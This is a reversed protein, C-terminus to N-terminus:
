AFSTVGIRRMQRYRGTSYGAVVSGNTTAESGPDATSLPLPVTGRHYTPAPASAVTPNNSGYGNRAFPVVSTLTHGTPYRYGAQSQILYDHNSDM